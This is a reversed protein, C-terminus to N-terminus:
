DDLLELPLTQELCADRASDIRALDDLHDAHAADRDAILQEIRDAMKDAVAAAADARDTEDQLQTTLEDVRHRLSGVYWIGGAAIAALLLAAVLGRNIFLASIM